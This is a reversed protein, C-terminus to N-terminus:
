RLRVALGPNSRRRVYLLVEGPGPKPTPVKKYEMKDFGGNGKTVVALMQDPVARRSSTMLADM